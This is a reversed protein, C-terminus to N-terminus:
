TAPKTEAVAPIENMKAALAGLKPRRDGGGAAALAGTFAGFDWAIVAAVDAANPRDGGMFGGGAPIKAELLDFAGSAQGALRAAWDEWRKEEPRRQTEYLWYTTKDALGSAVAVFQMVERRADADSPLLRKDESAVSELWDCIAWAEILREGSETEAIPVRGLPHIEKLKEFDEGVVQIKVSEVDWGQLKAWILVRRTFQSLTRGYVILKAM